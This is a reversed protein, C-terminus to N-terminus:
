LYLLVILDLVLVNKSVIYFFHVYIVGIGILEDVLM